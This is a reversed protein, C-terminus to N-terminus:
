KSIIINKKFLSKLGFRRMVTVFTNPRTFFFFYMCNSHYALYTFPYKFYYVLFYMM